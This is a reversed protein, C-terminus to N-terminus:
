TVCTEIVFMCYLVTVVIPAITGPAPSPAELGNPVAVIEMGCHTNLKTRITLVDM